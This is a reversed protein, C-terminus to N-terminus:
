ASREEPGPQTFEVDPWVAATDREAPPLDWAAEGEGQEVRYPERSLGAIKAPILDTPDMAAPHRLLVLAAALEKELLRLQEVNAAAHADDAMTGIMRGSAADARTCLDRGHQQPHGRRLIVAPQSHEQLGIFQGEQRLLSFAVGELDHPRLRCHM